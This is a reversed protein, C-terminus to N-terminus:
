EGEKEARACYWAHAGDGHSCLECRSEAPAEREVTAITRATAKRKRGTTTLPRLDVVAVKRDSDYRINVWRIGRAVFSAVDRNSTYSGVGGDSFSALGRVRFDRGANWDLIAAKASKYERGYAGSVTLTLLQM